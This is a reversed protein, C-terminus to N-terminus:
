LTTRCPLLRDARPDACFAALEDFYRQVLAALEGPEGTDSRVALNKM